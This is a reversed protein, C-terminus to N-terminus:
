PPVQPEAVELVQGLLPDQAEDRGHCCARLRKSQPGSAQLLLVAGLTHVEPVQESRSLLLSVAQRREDLLAALLHPLLLVLLEELLGAPLATLLTPLPASSRGIPTVPRRIPRPRASAASRLTEVRATAQPEDSGRGVFAGSPDSATDNGEASPMVSSPRSRPSPASPMTSECM